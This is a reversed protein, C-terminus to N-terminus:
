KSLKKLPWIVFNVGILRSYIRGELDHLIADVTVTTDTKSEIECSVYFPRDVPTAAFQEYTELSTPLASDQHFYELWVGLPHLSIDTIYPNFWQLPFQGQQKANIKRWLCKATVKKPSCSLIKELGQFCAGHFLGVYSQYFEKSNESFIQEVEFDALNHIPAPPIDRLLNLKISFHYHIKGALSESWIKAVFVIENNDKAVEELELIHEKAKHENFVIGKLVKFDQCSFVRYGPYLNECTNFIWSIAFTAPLVPNGAIVHDQLFPNAELTIQRSIRYTQLETNFELHPVTAPSGVLFQPTTRDGSNIQKVLIDTGVRVPIIGINRQEFAKKLLPTVMGKEWPGWNFAVIHSNPYKQKLLHATKNLIENALAYDTQGINGYFASSSSFLILYELRDLDVCAFLNELGKVKTAYVTEFDRETKKTILKDALNGAGHIIGSISGLRDVASFVKDRLALKDTIDVSLYEAKAGTEEILALTNKIERSSSIRAFIKEISKPTPTEGVELRNEMIRKKLGSEEFCGKAFNPESALLQSRGLLIFKCQYQRALEITCEATIGKAGGSVLFVSSPRILTTSRM